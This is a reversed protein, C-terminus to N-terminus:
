SNNVQLVFLHKCVLVQSMSSVHIQAFMSSYTTAGFLCYHFMERNPYKKNLSSVRFCPSLSCKYVANYLTTTNWESWFWRYFNNQKSYELQIRGKHKMTLNLHKWRVKCSTDEGWKRLDGAPYCGYTTHHRVLAYLQPLCWCRYESSIHVSIDNLSIVVVARGCAWM